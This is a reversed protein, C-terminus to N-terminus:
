GGPHIVIANGFLQEGWPYLATEFDSLFHIAKGKRKLWKKGYPDYPFHNIYYDCTEEWHKLSLSKGYHQCYFNVIINLNEPIVPERSDNGKFDISKHNKWIMIIDRREIGFFTRYNLLKDSQSFPKQDNETMYADFLSIRIADVNRVNDSSLFGKIDGLYREDADACFIWEPNYEKALNLMENRDTTECIIRQDPKRLWKFNRIIAIVKSHEKVIDFTHDTSSDDFCIIADCFESLHNLTDKIILEENRIRLIALLKIEGSVRSRYKYTRHKNMAKFFSNLIGM